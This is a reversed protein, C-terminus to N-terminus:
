AGSTTQQFLTMTHNATFAPISGFNQIFVQVEQAMKKSLPTKLISYPPQAQPHYRFMLVDEKPGFCSTLTYTTPAHAVDAWPDSVMEMRYGFLARCSERFAKVRQKFVDKMAAAQKEAAALQRRLLKAEAAAVAAAVVPDDADASSSAGGALAAAAAAATSGAAASSPGARAGAAATAGGRVSLAQKLADNQERLKELEAKDQLRALEAAPNAVLHLIRTRTPDYEGGALQAQLADATAALEDLEKEARKLEAAAAAEGAKAAAEGDTAQKLQAQLQQQAAQLETVLAQLAAVKAAASGSEGVDAGDAAGTGAAAAAGAATGADAEQEQELLTVLRKLGDLETQGLKLQLQAQALQQQAKHLEATAAAQQAEAAALQQRLEAGEAKTTALEVQMEHRQKDLHQQKSQLAALAQPSPHDIGLASKFATRWLELENQLQALQGQAAQAQELAAKVERLEDQAQQLQWEAQTKALQKDLTKSHAIERALQEKLQKNSSSLSAAEADKVARWTTLQNKLSAVEAERLELQQAQEHHQKRLSQLEEDLEHIRGGRAAM